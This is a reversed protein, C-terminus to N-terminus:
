SKDQILNSLNSYDNQIGLMELYVSIMGRHHTEHNFMHLVLGAFDRHHEIGRIDTYVLTRGLDAETVEHVFDTILKDMYERKPLYEKQTEFADTAFDIENSFLNDKIYQFTRLKSFRKLWNFDAIYIHNCMKFISPFFASFSHNWQTEDMHSILKNMEGNTKENYSALLRITNIDM